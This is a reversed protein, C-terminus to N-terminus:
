CGGTLVTNKFDFQCQTQPNTIGANCSYRCFVKLCALPHDYPKNTVANQIEHQIKAIINPKIYNYVATTGSDGYPGMFRCLPAGYNSDGAGGIEITCTNGDSDKGFDPEITDGVAKFYDIYPFSSDIHNAIDQASKACNTDSSTDLPPVDNLPLAFSSTISFLSLTAALLITKNM